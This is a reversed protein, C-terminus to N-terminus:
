QDILDRALHPHLRGLLAVAPLGSVLAELLANPTGEVESALSLRYPGTLPM